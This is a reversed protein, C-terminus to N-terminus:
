NQLFSKKIGFPALGHFAKEKKDQRQDTKQEDQRVVYPHLRLRRRAQHYELRKHSRGSADTLSGTRCNVLQRSFICALGYEQNFLIDIM